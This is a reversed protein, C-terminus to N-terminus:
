FLLGSYNRPKQYEQIRIQEGVNKIKEVRKISKYAKSNCEHSCYKTTTKKAIFHKSCWDCIKEIELRSSM